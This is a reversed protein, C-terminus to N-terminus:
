NIRSPFLFGMGSIFEYQLSPNETRVSYIEPTSLGMGQYLGRRFNTSEVSGATELSPMSSSISDMDSDEDSVADSFSFLEPQDIETLFLIDMGSTVEYQLKHM